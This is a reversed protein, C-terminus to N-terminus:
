KDEKLKDIIDASHKTINKLGDTGINTDYIVDAILASLSNLVTDKCHGPKPLSEEHAILRNLYDRAKKLDDLGNKHKWRLMYKLVQYTSSCEVGTLDSTFGEMVDIAEIGNRIYYNVKEEKGIM